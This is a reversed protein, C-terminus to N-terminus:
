ELTKLLETFYARADSLDKEDPHTAAAKHREIREPTVAHPHGEPFMKKMMELLAPDIKGQCAFGGLYTNSADLCAIGSDLSDAAHKHDRPMGLTLFLAVDKDRITELYKKMTADPGGKDVWYGAIILDYDGANPETRVDIPTVGIADGIAEAVKKTNGTKSSYTLLIRM